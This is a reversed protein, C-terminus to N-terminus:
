DIKISGRYGHLLQYVPQCRYMVDYKYYVPVKWVAQGQLFVVYRNMYFFM